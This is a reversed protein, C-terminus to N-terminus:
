PRPREAVIAAIRYTLKNISRLAFHNNTSTTSWGAVGTYRLHALLEKPSAFNCVVEIEEIRVLNFRQEIIRRLTDVDLYDIPAPRIADLEAMTGRIFTSIILYGGPNLIRACQEFFGPINQFWQIASSSLIADYREQTNRIWEEADAEIALECEALNPLSVPNIDLLHIEAPKFREVYCPTLLGTGVGIELIRGSPAILADHSSEMLHAIARRQPHAHSDYTEAAAKFNKAMSEKKPIVIKVIDRLDIYHPEGSLITVDYGLEKWVNLINSQPFIMDRDGYFVRRWPIDNNAPILPIQDLQRQLSEIYQDDNPLQSFVAEFAAKGGAVRRRFRMLNDPTLRKGTNRYTEVPIGFQDHCPIPSGNIAYAATIKSAPLVSAAVVGLSWAFLWVTHYNDLFSSDLDPTSYDYVVATDWGEEVVHQYFSAETGWGAFILILQQNGEVRHTFEIRM